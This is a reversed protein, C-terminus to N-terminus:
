RSENDSTLVMPPAADGFPAAAAMVAHSNVYYGADIATPVAARHWADYGIYLAVAVAAAVPVLVIPRLAANLREWLSQPPHEVASRIGAVVRLPLERETANAHARLLETLSLEEARREDCSRCSALHAHVAADDEPPLERYLYDVIREISPHTENM